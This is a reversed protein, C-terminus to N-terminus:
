TIHLTNRQSMSHHLMHQVTIYYSTVHSVNELTDFFIIYRFKWNPLLGVLFISCKLSKEAKPMAGDYLNCKHCIKFWEVGFAVINARYVFDLTTKLIPNKPSTIVKFIKEKIESCIIGLFFLHLVMSDKKHKKDELPVFELWINSSNFKWSRCGQKLKWATDASM